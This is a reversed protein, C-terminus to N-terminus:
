RRKSVHNELKGVRLPTRALGLVLINRYEVLEPYESESTPPCSCHFDPCSQRTRTRSFPFVVSLIEDLLESLIRVAPLCRTRNEFFDPCFRSLCLVRVTSDASTQEFRFYQKTFDKNESESIICLLNLWFPVTWLKKVIPSVPRDMSEQTVIYKNM